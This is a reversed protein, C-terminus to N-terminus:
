PRAAQLRVVTGDEGSRIQVLDCLQNTMWLGRGGEQTRTPRLRGVLPDVIWGGDQVEIVLKGPETWIRLMGIGGGHAVSNAALESAAVVLAAVDLSPVGVSEAAEEVRRRVEALDPREFPFGAVGAPRDPLEGAFHDAAVEYGASPESIGDHSVASHSHGVAELVEDDLASADYPCLLSWEPVAAFAVNLLSDHRRCEEAEAPARGPWLPESVARVPVGGHEDFFGQMFPIIRAPNRGLSEMEVFRMAGADGLEAELLPTNRRSVAVLVPEGAEIGARLFPVAGALYEDRDRYILAEHRFGRPM